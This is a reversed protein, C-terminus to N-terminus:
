TAIDEASTSYLLPHMANMAALWRHISSKAFECIFLVSCHRGSSYVELAFTRNRHSCIKLVSVGSVDHSAVVTLPFVNCCIWKCCFPDAILDLNCINTGLKIISWLMFHECLHNHNCHLVLALRQVLLPSLIVSCQSM